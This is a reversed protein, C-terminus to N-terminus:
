DTAADALGLRAFIERREAEYADRTVAGAAFAESLTQFRAMLADSDPADTEAPREAREQRRERKRAAREQQKKERERKEFSTPV